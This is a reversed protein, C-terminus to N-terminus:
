IASKKGLNLFEIEKGESDYMEALVNDEEKLYYVIKKKPKEFSMLFIKFFLYMCSAYSTILMPIAFFAFNGAPIKNLMELFAQRSFGSFLYTSALVLPLFSMILGAMLVLVLLLRKM